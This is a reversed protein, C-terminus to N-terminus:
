EESLRSGNGTVSTPHPPFRAESLKQRRPELKKWVAPLCEASCVRLRGEGPSVEISLIPDRAFPAGCADCAARGTKPRGGLIRDLRHWM